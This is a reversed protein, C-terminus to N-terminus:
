CAHYGRLYSALGQKDKFRVLQSSNWDALLMESSHPLSGLALCWEDIREASVGHLSLWISQVVDSKGISAFAVATDDLGWAYVSRCPDRHSHLGTFVQDFRPLVTGITSHLAQLTVGLSALSDPPEGRMYCDTFGLGARHVDAFEDLRRMEEACYDYAVAPLVEVQGYDDEHFFVSRM